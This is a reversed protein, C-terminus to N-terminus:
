SPQDENLGRMEKNKASIVDYKVFISAISRWGRTRHESVTVGLTMGLMRVFSNTLIATGRRAELNHQSSTPLLSFGMGFGVLIMYVTFTGLLFRGIFYPIVSLIMLNRYSTKTTFIGGMANGVVTGLMMPTLVLGASTATSGYVAQVYIPIYVVLCIFTAGYLFALIQSTAFLRRKFM